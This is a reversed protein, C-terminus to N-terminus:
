KSLFEQGFSTVAVAADKSRINRADERHIFTIGDQAAKDGEELIATSEHDNMNENDPSADLDLGDLLEELKIRQDDSEDESEDNDKDEVMNVTTNASKKRKLAESKFLNMNSRMEKDAEVEQLFDEEDVDMDNRQNVVEEALEMDLRRLKWFRSKEGGGYLKRVIIVDPFTERMEEAEDNVWQTERLDYGVCVDGAKLLYGIHSREEVQADNNGMDAQRALTLHALRSKKQSIKTHIRQAANPRLVVPEKGLVVYQTLRSRAATILPRLNTRWYAESTMNATQGTLPDIFHVINSINKVLVLRAINGLRNAVKAPLFVLDDKCLPCIEVYNTFKFNATNSKLDASILKKSTKVQIPAVNELFSIFRAAASREPFYFDMGDKFLEIKLCGRHAQHKLILQELYM